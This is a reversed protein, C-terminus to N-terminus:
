RTSAPMSAVIDDLIAKIEARRHARRAKWEAAAALDESSIDPDLERFKAPELRDHDVREKQQANAEDMILGIKLLHALITRDM